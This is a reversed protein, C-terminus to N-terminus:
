GLSGSIAPGRGPSIAAIKDKLSSTPTWPRASKLRDRFVAKPMEGADRYGEMSLVRVEIDYGYLLRAIRKTNEQEKRDLALVVPTNHEVLRHFLLFNEALTNGFLCTANDGCRFVDFPGETIVLESSWDIDLENFVIAQKKGDANRYRPYTWDNDARSTFYNLKGEHDFSPVIVRGIYLEDTSFGLRYRWMDHETMGRERVYRIVNRLQPVRADLHTAMLLFGEPLPVDGADPVVFVACRAKYKPLPFYKEAEQMHDRRYRRILSTISKGKVGCVWCHYRGDDLRIALKLKQKGEEECKPCYCAVNVGDASKYVRGFVRRLLAM